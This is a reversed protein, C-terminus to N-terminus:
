RTEKGRRLGHGGYELRYAAEAGPPAKALRSFAMGPMKGLAQKVNKTVLIEGSRAVDEGLKAAANVEAGFVDFDGVRLMQGYGIGVCLLVKEEPPLGRNYARVARQMEVAAPVAERPGPFVVLFSDGEFKMALGVHREIIPLLLCESAYITQLFHIIGFRAVHRSFGSLDTFMVCWRGGFLRWIRRDIEGKDAGPEMRQHIMQELRRQSPGLLVSRATRGASKPM